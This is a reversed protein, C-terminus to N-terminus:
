FGGAPFYWGSLAKKVRRNLRDKTGLASFSDGTIVQQKGDSLHTVITWRVEPVSESLRCGANHHLLNVDVRIIADVQVVWVDSSGEVWCRDYASLWSQRWGTTIGLDIDLSTAHWADVRWNGVKRIGM